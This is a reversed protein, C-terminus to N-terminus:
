TWRSVIGMHPSARTEFFSLVQYDELQSRFDDIQASAFLSDRELSELFSNTPTSYIARVIRAAVKGLPVAESGRHPTAFFVM